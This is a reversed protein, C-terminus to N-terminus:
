SFLNMFLNINQFQLYFTIKYLILVKPRPYGEIKCALMVSQGEELKVNALPVIVKPPRMNEAEEPRKAVKHPQELFRFADPNIMSTNDINPMQNIFAQCQTQDAGVENEAIAIYNGVDSMHADNITLTVIGTYLDYEPTYRTSAPLLRNDKVWTIKPKPYGEVKAALRVSEGENIKINSLPIIFKPPQYNLVDSNEPRKNDKPAELYKFADPKVMSTRDINPMPNVQVVGNTQDQGCKNVAVCTYHGSDNSLADPVRLSVIGSNLNYNTILRNSAPIPQNNKFWTVTPFPYGELKAQLNLNGGEDIRTNALPVVFKPPRLAETPIDSSDHRPRGDPKELYRFADPNVIPTSDIASSRRL